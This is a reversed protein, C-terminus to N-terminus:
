LRARKRAMDELWEIFPKRPIIWRRGSRFAPFDGRNVWELMTPTSVAAFEAATGLSFAGAERKKEQEM